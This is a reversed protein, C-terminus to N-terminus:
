ILSHRAKNLQNAKVIELNQEHYRQAIRLSEAYEKFAQGVRGSKSSTLNDPWYGIAAEKGPAVMMGGRGKM